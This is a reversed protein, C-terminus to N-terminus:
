KKGGKLSSIDEQIVLPDIDGLRLHNACATCVDDCCDFQYISPFGIDGCRPCTYTNTEKDWM